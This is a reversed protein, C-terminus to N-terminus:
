DKSKRLLLTYQRLTKVTDPHQPGLVAKRIALAREELRKAERYNKQAACTEALSALVNSVEIADPGLRAEQAALVRRLLSEAIPYENRNNRGEYFHVTALNALIPITRPHAPGLTREAVDLAKELEQRAETWRGQSGYLFGLNSRVASVDANQPGLVRERTAVASKLLAEAKVYYGQHTYIAGLSAKVTAADLVGAGPHKEWIALARQYLRQAEDLRGQAQYVVGLGHLTRAVYPHDPGFWHELEPLAAEGIKAAAAYDGQDVMVAILNSKVIAALPKQTNTQEYIRIAQRYYAESQRLRGLTDNALGLHNFLGALRVNDPGYKAELISRARLLIQEAERVRGTLLYLKAQVLSHRATEPATEGFLRRDIELAEHISPEAESYRDVAILAGALDSATEAARASDAAAQHSDAYLQRLLQLAEAFDGHELLRSAQVSRPDPAVDAATLLCCIVSSILIRSFM